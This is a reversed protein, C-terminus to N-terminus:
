WLSDTDELLARGTQNLRKRVYRRRQPVQRPNLDIWDVDASPHVIQNQAIPDSSVPFAVQHAMKMTAVRDERRFGPKCKLMM